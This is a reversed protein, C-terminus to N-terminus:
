AYKIRQVQKVILDDVKGNNVRLEFAVVGKGTDQVMSEIDVLYPKAKRLAGDLEEVSFKQTEMLILCTKSLM